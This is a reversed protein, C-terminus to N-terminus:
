PRAGAAQLLDEIAQYGRARALALPRVGDGDALDIDADAEILAEVIATHRPGGDGLVIAEILATWGRDGALMLPTRGHADRINADAGTRTLARIRAIDGLAAAALLGDYAALEQESPPTQAAATGIAASAALLGLVCLGAFRRFSRNM